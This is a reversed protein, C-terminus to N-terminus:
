LAASDNWPSRAYTFHSTQKLELSYVTHTHDNMIKAFTRLLLRSGTYYFDTSVSDQYYIHVYVDFDM